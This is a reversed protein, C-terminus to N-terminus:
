RYLRGASLDQGDVVPAPRREQAVAGAAAPHDQAGVRQLVHSGAPRRGVRLRRPPHVRRQRLIGAYVAGHPGVVRSHDEPSDGYPPLVSEHGEINRWFVNVGFQDRRSSRDVQCRGRFRRGDIGEVQPRVFHGEKVAKSGTAGAGVAKSLRAVVVM